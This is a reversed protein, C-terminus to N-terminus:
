WGQYSFCLGRRNPSTRARALARRSGLPISLGPTSIGLASVARLQRLRDNSGFPLVHGELDRRRSQLSDSYRIGFESRDPSFLPNKWSRCYSSASNGGSRLMSSTHVSWTSPASGGATAATSGPGSRDMGACVALTTSAAVTCKSSGIAISFIPISVAAEISTVEDARSCGPNRCTRTGRGGSSSGGTWGHGCGRARHTGPHRVPTGIRLPHESCEGPRLSSASWRM